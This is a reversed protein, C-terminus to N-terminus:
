EESVEDQYLAFVGILKSRNSVLKTRKNCQFVTSMSRSFITMNGIESRNNTDFTIACNKMMNIPLIMHIGAMSTNNEDSMTLKSIAMPVNRFVISKIDTPIEIKPVVCVATERGPGGFGTVKAYVTDDVRTGPFYAKLLDVTKTWVPIQAGTDFMIAVRKYLTTVPNPLGDVIDIIM